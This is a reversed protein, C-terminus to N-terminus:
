NNRCLKSMNKSLKFFIKKKWQNSGLDKWHEYWNNGLLKQYHVTKMLPQSCRQSIQRFSKKTIVKWNRKRYFFLLALVCTLQLLQTRLSNQPNKSLIRQRSMECNTRVLICLWKQTRHENKQKSTKEGAQSCRQFYSYRLTWYMGIQFSNNGVHPNESRPSLSLGYTKM